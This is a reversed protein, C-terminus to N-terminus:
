GNEALNTLFEEVSDEDYILQFFGTGVVKNFGSLIEITMRAGRTTVSNTVFSCEVEDSRVVTILVFGRDKGTRVWSVAGTTTKSWEAFLGDLDDESEQTELKWGDCDSVYYFNSGFCYEQTQDSVGAIEALYACVPDSPVVLHFDKCAIMQGREFVNKYRWDIPLANEVCHGIAGIKITEDSLFNEPYDHLGSGILEMRRLVDGLGNDRIPYTADEFNVLLTNHGDDFTLWVNNHQRYQKEGVATTSHVALLQNILEGITDNSPDQNIDAMQPIHPSPGFSINLTATKDGAAVMLRYKKVDSYRLVTPAEFDVIEIDNTALVTLITRMYRMGYINGIGGQALAHYPTREVVHLTAQPYNITTNM